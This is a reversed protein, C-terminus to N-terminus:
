ADPQISGLPVPQFHVPVYINALSPFRRPESVPWTNTVGNFMSRLRLKGSPVEQFSLQKFSPDASLNKNEFTYDEPVEEAFIDPSIMKAKFNPLDAAPRTNKSTNISTVPRHGPPRNIEPQMPRIYPPKLQNYSRQGQTQNQPPGPRKSPFNPAIHDPKKCIYCTTTRALAQIEVETQDEIGSVGSHYRSALSLPSDHSALSLCLSSSESLQQETRAANLLCLVDQASPTQQNNAEMFLDIKQDLSRWTLNAPPTPLTPAGGTPQLPALLTVPNNTDM